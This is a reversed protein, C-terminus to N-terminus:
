GETDGFPYRLNVVFSEKDIDSSMIEGRKDFSSGRGVKWLMTVNGGM